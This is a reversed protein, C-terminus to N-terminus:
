FPVINNWCLTIELVIYKDDYWIIEACFTIELVIYKDDYWIWHLYM